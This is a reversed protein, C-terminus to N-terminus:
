KYEYCSKFYKRFKFLSKLTFRNRKISDNFVNKSVLKKIKDKYKIIKLDNNLIKNTDKLKTAKKEFKELKSKLLNYKRTYNKVM